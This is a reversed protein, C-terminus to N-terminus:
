SMPQRCTVGLRNGGTMCPCVCVRTSRDGEGFGDVPFPKGLLLWEEKLSGQHSLHYLIQRCHLLSSNSRQTPFNGQLLTLPSGSWHKQRSFIMFLPAQHTSCDMPRWSDSAVSHSGAVFFWLFWSGLACASNDTIGSCCGLPHACPSGPRLPKLPPSPHQRTSPGCVRM